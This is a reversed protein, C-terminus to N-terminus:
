IVKFASTNMRLNKRFDEEDTLKLDNIMMYYEGKSDRKRTWLRLWQRRKRREKIHKQSLSLGIWCNHVIGDTKNNDMDAVKQFVVAYNVYVKIKAKFM